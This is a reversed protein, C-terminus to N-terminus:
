FGRNLLLFESSETLQFRSRKWTKYSNKLFECFGPLCYKSMMLNSRQFKKWIVPSLISPLLFLTALFLATGIKLETEIYSLPIIKIKNPDIREILYVLRTTIGIPGIAIFHDISQPIIKSPFIYNWLAIRECHKAEYAAHKLTLAAWQREDQLICQIVSFDTEIEAYGCYGEIRFGKQNM